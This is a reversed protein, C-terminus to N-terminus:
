GIAQSITQGASRFAEDSIDVDGRYPGQLAFIADINILITLTARGDDNNAFTSTPCRPRRGAGAARGMAFEVSM